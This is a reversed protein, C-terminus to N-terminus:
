EPKVWIPCGTHIREQVLGAEIAKITMRHNTVTCIITITTIMVTVCVIALSLIITTAKHASEM